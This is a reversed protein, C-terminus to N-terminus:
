YSNKNQQKLIPDVYTYIINNTITTIDLVVKM